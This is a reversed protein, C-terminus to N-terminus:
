LSLNKELRFSNDLDYKEILKEVSLSKDETTIQAPKWETTEFDIALGSSNLLTDMKVKQFQNKISNPFEKSLFFYTAPLGETLSEM